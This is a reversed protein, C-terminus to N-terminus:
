LSQRRGPLHLLAARLFPTGELVRVLDEEGLACVQGEEGQTDSIQRVRQSDVLWCTSTLIVVLFSFTLVFFSSFFQDICVQM